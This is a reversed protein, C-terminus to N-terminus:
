DAEPEAGAIEQAESIRMPLVMAVMLAVVATGIASWALVAGAALAQAVIQRVPGMAPAYGSGGLTGAILPAALLGGAIGGAGHVAIVDVADDIAGSRLWRAALWAAFAGALGAIMAGGPAMAQAAASAAVLGALAGRALSGPGSGSGTVADLLLWGLAGAAAAAQLNILAAGADDGATLTAGATLAIIAVWVLGTGALTLGSAARTEDIRERRGLLLTIVLASMGLSAHVTLAGGFDVTGLRAALWGGGHIWHTLPAYVIASWLGAFPVIWALNGREAWAGTLLSAALVAFGMQLAVFAVEPVTTDVRVNTLDLLMWANGSGLWGSSVAGFALTYGAAIWVLSVVAAIAMTETALAAFARARLHAGHHLVIGPVILALALLAAGLVFATDGSDVADAADTQAYAVAPALMFALGFATKLIPAIRTMQKDHM